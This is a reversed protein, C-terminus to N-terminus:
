QSQAPVLNVKSWVEGSNGGSDDTFYARFIAFTLRANGRDSPFTGQVKLSDGPRIVKRNLIIEKIDPAQEASLYREFLFKQVSVTTDGKNYLTVGWAWTNNSSVIPSYMPTMIVEVKPKQLDAILQDKEEIEQKLQDIEQVKQTITYNASNLSDKLDANEARLNTIAIGQEVVKAELEKIKGSCGSLLLVVILGVIAFIKAKM